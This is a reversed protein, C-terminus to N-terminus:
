AFITNGNSCTCSLHSCISCCSLQLDNKGGSNIRALRASSILHHAAILNYSLTSLCVAIALPILGVGERQASTLSSSSLLSLTRHLSTPLATIALVFSANGACSSKLATSGNSVTWCRPQSMLSFSITTSLLLALQIRACVLSTNSTRATLDRSDHRTGSPTESGSACNSMLIKSM